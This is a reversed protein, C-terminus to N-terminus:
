AWRASADTSELLRADLWGAGTRPQYRMGVISAAAPLAVEIEAEDPDDSPNKVEYRVVYRAEDRGLTVDIPAPGLALRDGYPSHVIDAAATAPCLGATLAAGVLWRTRM